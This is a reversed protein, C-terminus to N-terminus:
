LHWALWGAQYTGAGTGRTTVSAAELYVVGYRQRVSLARVVHTLKM